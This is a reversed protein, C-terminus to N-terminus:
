RTGWNYQQKVLKLYVLTETSIVGPLARIQTNLLELLSDDDECVVEVIADFSGATLVVDAEAAAAATDTVTEVGAARAKELAEPVLDFGLVRHGAAALNAAMPGGMHGLGLFLVTTM